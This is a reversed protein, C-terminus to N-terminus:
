LPRKLNANRQLVHTNQKKSLPRHIKFSHYQRKNVDYFPNEPKDQSKLTIQLIHNTLFRHAFESTINRLLAAIPVSNQSKKKLHSKSIDAYPFVSFIADPNSFGNRAWKFVACSCIALPPQEIIRSGAGPLSADHNVFPVSSLNTQQQISNKVMIFTACSTTGLHHNIAM